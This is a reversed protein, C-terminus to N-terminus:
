VREKAVELAKFAESQYIERYHATTQSFKLM